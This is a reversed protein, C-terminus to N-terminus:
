GLGICEMCVLIAKKLIEFAEGHLLGFVLLVGGTFLLLIQFVGARM